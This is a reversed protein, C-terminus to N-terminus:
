KRKGKNEIHLETTVFQYSAVLKKFSLWARDFQDQTDASLVLLTMVKPGDIYAVAERRGSPYIFRRVTASEGKTPLAGAESVVIDPDTKKMKALDYELLERVSAQGQYKEATNAYMVVPGKEWSSGKPYFVAQLGQKVGAENDLIWGQPAAILFVHNPGYVMGANMGDDKRGQPPDAQATALAIFVYVALLCICNRM